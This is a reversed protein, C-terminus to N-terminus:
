LNGQVEYDPFEGNFFINVKCQEMCVNESFSVIDFSEPGFIDDPNYSTEVTSKENEGALRAMAGNLRVIDNVLTLLNHCHKEEYKEDLFLLQM